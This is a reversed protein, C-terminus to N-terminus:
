LYENKDLTKLPAKMVVTKPELGIERQRKNLGMFNKNVWTAYNCEGDIEM